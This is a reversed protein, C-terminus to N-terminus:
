ITPTVKKLGRPRDPDLNKVVALRVAALKLETDLALADFPANAGDASLIKFVTGRESLADRVKELDDPLKRSPSLLAVMDRSGHAGIPGHLFEAASYASVHTQAMERFKLAADAAVAYFPGRGVFAAAPASRLDDLWGFDMSDENELMRAIRATAASFDGESFCGSWLSAAWLCLWLQLSFSKTAAVVTERSSSLLIHREALAALKNVSNDPENTVAVGRAGWGKLRRLCEIIDTSQGSQSFAWVAKGSFDLPKRAEFIAHPHAFDARVGAYAEWIYKAFLTANGSSGRGILYVSNDDSKLISGELARPASRSFGDLLSPIEHIDKWTLTDKHNM